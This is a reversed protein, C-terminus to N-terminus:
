PMGKMSYRVRRAFCVVTRAVASAFADLEALEAYEGQAHANNVGLSGPGLVVTFAGPVGNMWIADCTFAPEADPWRAIGAGDRLLAECWEDSGALTPLGRKHWELRTVEAADAATRAFERISGFRAAFDEIGDRLAMSVTAELEVASVSSSYSLNLLLEGSGYARNHLRGTHLGAVCVRGDPVRPVLAAGLYQALFGLLVSANHGVEPRDDIADRGAVRVCATMAATARPLYH